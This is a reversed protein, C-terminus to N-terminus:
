TESCKRQGFKLWYEDSCRGSFMREEWDYTQPNERNNETKRLGRGQNEVESFVEKRWLEEGGFSFIYLCFFFLLYLHLLLECICYIRELSWSASSSPSFSLLLFSEAWPGSLVNSKQLCQCWPISLCINDDPYAFQHKCWCRGAWGFCEFDIWLAWIYSCM